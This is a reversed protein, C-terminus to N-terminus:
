TQGLPGGHKAMFAGYNPKATKPQTLTQQKPQNGTHMWKTYSAIKVLTKDMPAVTMMHQIIPSFDESDYEVGETYKFPEYLSTGQYALAPAQQYM